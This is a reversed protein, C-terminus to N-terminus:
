LLGGEIIKDFEGRNFTIYRKRTKGIRKQIRYRIGDSISFYVKILKLDCLNMLIKKVKFAKLGHQHLLYNSINIFTNPIMYVYANDYYGLLIKNPNIKEHEKVHLFYYREDHLFRYILHM